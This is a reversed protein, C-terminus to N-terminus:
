EGGKQVEEKVGYLRNFAELDCRSVSAETEGPVWGVHYELGPLRVDVFRVLERSPGYNEYTFASLAEPWKTTAAEIAAHERAQRGRREAWDVMMCTPSCFPSSGADVPDFADERDFEGDRRGEADFTCQCGSCTHWWGAALTARVPVPGPAYEDAWPARCCSEIDEFDVCLEGAGNRRAAVGSTAFEITCCGEGSERVEYAKLPKEQTKYEM